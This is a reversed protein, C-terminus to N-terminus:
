DEQINLITILRSVTEGTGAVAQISVSNGKHGYRMMGEEQFFAAAQFLIM